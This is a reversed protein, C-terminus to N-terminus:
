QKHGAPVYRVGALEALVWLIGGLYLWRFSPRALEATCLYIAALGMGLRMRADGCDEGEAATYFSFLTLTMAGLLAFIYNQMQPDGSWIQYCVVIHVLFFLCVVVYLLFFPRKGLARAGAALLLCVPAMLGLVHWVNELYNGTIPAGNLVTVLIGAGAAANGAAASLGAAYAKDVRNLPKQKRAVLVIRVLVGITLVALAIGLPQNRVLLGKADVATAYLGWRMALAAMGPILIGASLKGSGSNGKM